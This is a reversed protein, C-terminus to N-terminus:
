EMGEFNFYLDNDVVTINVLVFIDGEETMVETGLQPLEGFFEKYALVKEKIESLVQKRDKIETDSTAIIEM